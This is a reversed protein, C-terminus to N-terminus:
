GVTNCIGFGLRQIYEYYADYHMCTDTYMEPM